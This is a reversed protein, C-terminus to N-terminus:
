LVQADKDEMHLYIDHSISVVPIEIGPKRLIEKSILLYSVGEKDKVIYFRYGILRMMPNFQFAGVDVFALTVILIVYINTFWGRAFQVAM